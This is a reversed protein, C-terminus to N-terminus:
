CDSERLTSRSGVSTARSGAGVWGSRLRRSHEPVWLSTPLSIARTARLPIIRELLAEPKQTPYGLREAAQSNIPAIDSWLEHVTQGELEDLYRKLKRWRVARTYAVRRTWSSCRREPHDAVGKTLGNYEYM